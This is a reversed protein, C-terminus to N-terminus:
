LTMFIAVCFPNRCTVKDASRTPKVDLLNGEQFGINARLM